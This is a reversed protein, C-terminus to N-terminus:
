RGRAAVRIGHDPGDQDEERADDAQDDVQRHPGLAVEAGTGGAVLLPQRRQRFAREARHVGARGGLGSLTRSNSYPPIMASAGAGAALPSAGFIGPLSRTTLGVVTSIRPSKVHPM